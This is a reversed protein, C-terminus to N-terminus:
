WRRISRFFGGAAPSWCSRSGIPGAVVAAKMPDAIVTMTSGPGTLTGGIFLGGTIRINSATAGIVVDRDVVVLGEIQLGNLDQITLNGSVYLAPLNPAATLQSASASASVTLNGLVMLMGKVTVTGSINLDGVRRWISDPAYLGAVMKDPPVTPVVRTPYLPNVYATTVPPWVLSLVQPNVQGKPATGMFTVAFVDGVIAGNNVLNSRTHVDGLVNVGNWLTTNTGLDLAICPDLRLTAALRSRATRQNDVLRYAESSISYTCRDTTPSSDCSVHLDYYDRSTAVLQQEVAGSTWFDAPVDQPHLVLGRVHELGSEALQDMQMRLLTNTGCALETDASALFGTALITIALIIGLVMLLAVGRHHAVLVVRHDLVERM